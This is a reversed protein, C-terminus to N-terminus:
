QGSEPLWGTGNDGDDGTVARKCCAGTGPMDGAARIDMTFIRGRFNQDFLCGV